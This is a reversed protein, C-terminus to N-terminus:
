ASGGLRLGSRRNDEDDNRKTVRCRDSGLFERIRAAEHTFLRDAKSTLYRISHSDDLALVRDTEFTMRLVQTTTNPEQGFLLCLTNHAADSQLKFILDVFRRRGRGTAFGWGHWNKKENWVYDAKTTGTGLSLVKINQLPLSMNKRVDAVAILSPNNAWLGGDAVCYAGAVVHPDFYIPASCSALVADSVPVDKDRVYDPLYKSKFVHVAGSVVDVAPIVLPCAIDGLTIDGFERELVDRLGSNSYRSAALGALARRRPRRFVTAAAEHYLDVLSEARWGCAIGAAIIAGTSTGAFMGFSKRWDIGYEEEMRQLVHAAFVGRIGGGDVALILFQPNTDM